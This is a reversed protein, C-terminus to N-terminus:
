VLILMSIIGVIFSALGLIFSWIGWDLLKARNNNGKRLHKTYQIIKGIIKGLAIELGDNEIKNTLKELDFTSDGLLRMSLLMLLLSFGFIIIAIILVLKILLPITTLFNATFIFYTSIISIFVGGFTTFRQAKTELKEKREIELNRESNAIDYLLDDITKLFLWKNM